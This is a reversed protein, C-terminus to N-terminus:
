KANKLTKGIFDGVKEAFDRVGKDASGGFFGAAKRDIVQDEGLITGTSKDKIWADVAFKQKGAGFGILYRAAKNGKKYDTVSGGFTIARAADPCSADGARVGVMGKMSSPIDAIIGQRLKELVEPPISAARKDERSTAQSQDATQFLEVEICDYDAARLATPLVLLPLIAMAALTLKTM